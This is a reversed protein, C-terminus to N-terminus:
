VHNGLVANLAVVPATTLAVGVTFVVYVAVPVFVTVPQEEVPVRRIVTGRVETLAADAAIQMPEDVVIVAVLVPM